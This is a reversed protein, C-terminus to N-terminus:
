SRRRIVPYVTHSQSINKLDVIRSEGFEFVDNVINRVKEPVLIESPRAEGQLRAALNM